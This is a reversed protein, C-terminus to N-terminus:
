LAHLMFAADFALLGNEIAWYKRTWFSKWTTKAYEVSKSVILYFIINKNRKPMLNYLCISITELFDTIHHRFDCM